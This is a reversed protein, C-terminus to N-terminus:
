LEYGSNLLVKTAGMKVAVAFGQLMEDVYDGILHVGLVKQTSKQCVIKMGTKKKEEAPSLAYLTNSFTSQYIQIDEGYRLRAEPETIGVTGITPHSFVVSPVNTYDMISDAQNNFLRDALRRGAQIAVPTLDVKGINDGLCYIGPATTEEKENVVVFGNKVEVNVLDLGLGELAPIRGAAMLIFDIGKVEQGNQFYCNYSGDEAKVVHDITSNNMVTLGSKKMEDMLISLIYPDYTRLPTDRRCALITESGLINLIGAMEVAIYGGGVVLSRKPPSELDWFTDSTGCYENGPFVPMLPKDGTAILIHESELIADNGVQVQHPGIFHGFGEFYEVHNNSLARAHNANLRKVFRCEFRCLIVYEDRKQKLISWDFSETTTFGYDKALHITERISAANYMVKKPMCGINVCTGGVKNKEIIAVKKGYGAARKACALGGLM